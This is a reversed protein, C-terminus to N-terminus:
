VCALRSLYRSIIAHKIVIMIIYLWSDIMDIHVLYAVLLIHMNLHSSYDYLM